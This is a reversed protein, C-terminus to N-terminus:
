RLARVLGQESQLLINCISKLSEVVVEQDCQDSKLPGDRCVRWPADAGEQAETEGDATPFFICKLFFYMSEIWYYNYFVMFCHLHKFVRFGVNAKQGFVKSVKSKM